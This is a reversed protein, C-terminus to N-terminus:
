KELNILLNAAFLLFLINATWAALFPPLVGALGLSRSFSMIAYLLFMTAIGITISLPIGFSRRWLAIPIALLALVTSILPFALKINLDVLYTTNDYGEAKVKEAFAKLEKYSRDEPDKMRRTFTEPTEPIKLLIGTFKESKYTDDENRTLIMGKEAKWFGGQWTCVESDIRKILRFRDDLFYFVPNQMTKTKIDYYKIWYFNNKSKYWIESNGYFGVPSQRNVDVDWIENSRSSTHPVILDSVIFSAISLILSILILPQFVQLLNLGCAKLATTELNKKMQCLLVIASIMVAVPMMQVAILPIKFLLFFLIELLVPLSLLGEHVLEYPYVPLMIDHVPGRRIHYFPMM